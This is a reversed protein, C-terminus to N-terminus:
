CGINIIYFIVWDDQSCGYYSAQLHTNIIILNSEKIKIKVYLCGKQGFICELVSYTYPRFETEIIPFRSIILLGGDIINKSFFSPQPIEYHYFFGLNSSLKILTQRRSTFTGFMEQLCVIDFNDLLSIFDNLREDKWDNENNKVPPPRLFINYTLLKIKNNERKLILNEDINSSDIDQLPHYKLSTNDLKEYDM